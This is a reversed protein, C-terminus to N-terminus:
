RSAGVAGAAPHDKDVMIPWGHRRAHRRLLRDPNVARPHGVVNLAPLDAISDSYFYSRRLDVSHAQAFQEAWYRKGDGYCLPRVADGTLRGGAVLLRNVLLHEIDLERALPEAVYNTASSLIAVVHGNARHEVVKAAMATSIAPRICAAFWADCLERVEDHSQGRVWDTYRAFLVDIDLLNLRHLLTYYLPRVLDRRRVQGQQVLYRMFLMGSDTTILTHDIDFFAAPRM